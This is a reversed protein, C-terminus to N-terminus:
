RNFGSRLSKQPLKSADISSAASTREDSPTAKNSFACAWEGGGPFTGFAYVDGASAQRGNVVVYDKLDKFNRKALSSQKEGWERLTVLRSPNAILYALSPVHQSIRRVEDPPASHGIETAGSGRDYRDMLSRRKSSILVM